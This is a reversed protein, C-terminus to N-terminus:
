NRRCPASRGTIDRNSVLGYTTESGAGQTSSQTGPHNGAPCYAGASARVSAALDARVHVLAPSGAHRDFRCGLRRALAVAGANDGSIEAHASQFGAKAAVAALMVLLAAAVGRRQWADTVVVAVECEGARGSAVYEAIGATRGDDRHARAILSVRFPPDPNLIRDIWELPPTTVAHMFRLYRAQSSLGRFFDEICAADGPRIPRIVFEDCRAPLLRTAVARGSM